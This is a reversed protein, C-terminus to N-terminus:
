KEELLISSININSGIISPFLVSVYSLILYIASFLFVSKIDFIFMNTFYQNSYVVCMVSYILFFSVLGILVGTIIMIMSKKTFMYTIDDRSAGVARRIGIESYKNKMLILQVIITAIFSIVFISLITIYSTKNIDENTKKYTDLTKYYSLFKNDDKLQPFDYDKTYISTKVYSYSFMNLLTTYPIFLQITNKDINRKVDSSDALVGKLVFQIGNIVIKMDKKYGIKQLHSSYAIISNNKNMMDIDDFSKGEQISTMFISNSYASPIPFKQFETRAGIIQIHLDKCVINTKVYEEINIYFLEYPLGTFNNELFNSYEDQQLMNYVSFNVPFDAYNLNKIKTQLKNNSLSFSTFLSIFLSLLILFLNMKNFNFENKFKNFKKKM